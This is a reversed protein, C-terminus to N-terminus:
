IVEVEVSYLDKSTDQHYPTVSQVNYQRGDADTLRADLWTQDPMVTQNFAYFYCTGARTITRANDTGTKQAKRDFRVHEYTQPKSYTPAKYKDHGTILEVGVSDVLWMPNPNILM